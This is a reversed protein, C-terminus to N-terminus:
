SKLRKRILLASIVSLAGILAILNYGPIGPPPQQQESTKVVIVFSTGIYGALDRAYFRITVPGSPAGNWAALNITGVTESISYNHAGGDITYWIEDLNPENVTIDFIPTFEFEETNSPDTIIIDPAIIDKRVIVEAHGLNNLTDNAYFMITATGNSIKNWEVQDVIGSLGTFPIITTGGDLSYWTKDLDGDPIALAFSPAAIGILSNVLPSNITILPGLANTTFYRLSSEYMSGLSNNGFVQINHVGDNPMKITTNGLITKNTQGDLSYSAWNFDTNTDYGLLLGENM